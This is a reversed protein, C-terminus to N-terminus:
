HLSGNPYVKKWSDRASWAKWYAAVKPPVPGFRKELAALGESDKEGGVVLAIHALWAAVHFDDVGPEAGAIFPGATISAPLTELYFVRIADWLSTSANFFGQKAAPPAQGAYLAALESVSAIKADYFSKYPAAEPTAAYKKLGGLRTVTFINAFGSGVTALEADNRAAVFAFNPDISDEHVAKTVGTKPAVKKSSYSALFDVVDTTNTYAKGNAVLTPLTANKNIKVFSPDFNQGELLSTQKFEVKGDLDLEAVALEAAASWISLAFTYLAPQSM